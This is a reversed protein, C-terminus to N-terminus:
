APMSAAISSARRLPAQAVRKSSSMSKLRIARANHRASTQTGAKAPGAQLWARGSTTDMASSAPLATTLMPALRLTALLSRHPSSNRRGPL